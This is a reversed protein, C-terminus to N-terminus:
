NGRIVGSGEIDGDNYDFQGDWRLVFYWGPSPVNTLTFNITSSRGYPQLDQNWAWGGPTSVGSGAKTWVRAPPLGVLEAYSDELTVSSVVTSPRM